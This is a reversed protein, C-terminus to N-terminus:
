LKEVIIFTTINPHNDQIKEELLNLHYVKASQAPALITSDAPLTGNALDRAASATDSWEVLKADSFKTALYNKCQTLAQPHSSVQKIDEIKTGPLALLCQHVEFPLQDIVKFTYKGMAEFATEVLGGTSNSVPFIGRDIEGANLAKLVGDMDLLPIPDSQLSAKEAYELAAEESFSGEIGSYGITMTNATM